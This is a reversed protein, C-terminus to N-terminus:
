PYMEVHRTGAVLRQHICKGGIDAGPTQQRTRAQRSVALKSCLVSQGQDRGAPHIGLELPHPQDTAFGPAPSKDPFCRQRRALANRLRHHRRPHDVEVEVVRRQWTLSVQQAIGQALEGQGAVKLGEQTVLGMGPAQMLPSRERTM